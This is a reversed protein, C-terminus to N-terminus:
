GNVTIRVRTGQASESEEISEVVGLKQAKQLVAEKYVVALVKNLVGRAIAIIQSIESGAPGTIASLEDPDFTEGRHARAKQEASLREEAVAVTRESISVQLSDLDRNLVARIAPSSANEISILYEGDVSTWGTSALQQRFLGKMDEEPLIHSLTVPLTLSNGHLIVQEVGLKIRYTRSM